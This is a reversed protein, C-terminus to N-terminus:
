RREEMGGEDGRRWVEKMEEGGYRWVEKMEEMGGDRRWVEKM